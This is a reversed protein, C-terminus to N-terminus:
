VVARGLWCGEWTCGVWLSRLGFIASGGCTMAGANFCRLIRDLPSHCCFM